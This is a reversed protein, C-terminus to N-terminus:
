IFRPPPDLAWAFGVSPRSVRSRSLWWAAVASSVAALPLLACSVGCVATGLECDACQAMGVMLPLGTLVVVVVLVVALAKRVQSSRLIESLRMLMM